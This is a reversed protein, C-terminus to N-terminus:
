VVREGARWVATVIPMREYIRVRVLDARRGSAIEGRDGLGVMAAPEAAVMAVASPLSVGSTQHVVFCAEVLSMPVYDSALGDILRAAALARASVNGSHSAGLVVNPAGMVVRMGAQRAAVAAAQTTPFESITVGVAAAEAVQDTTADDHSALPLGHDRALRAVEIRAAIKREAPYGRRQEFIASLEEDGVPLRNATRWRELDQWQREGPTHDMLSVLRVFPDRVLAAFTDVVADTSVECRLHLLHEAKLLGDRQARQMAHLADLLADRPRACGRHRDGICLADFVTTVGAAAMQRDHTLLAPLGPWEVRPRPELHRELNDTHIDVLGPILFDGQLDVAAPSASNGADISAIRDGVVHVTGRVMAAGAVIRANTLIREGGGTRRDASAWGEGTVEVITPYARSLPQSRREEAPAQADNPDTSDARM